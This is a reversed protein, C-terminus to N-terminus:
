SLCCVGATDMGGKVDGNDFLGLVHVTVFNNVSQVVQSDWVDVDVALSVDMLVMNM